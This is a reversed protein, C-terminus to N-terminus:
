LSKLTVKNEPDWAHSSKKKPVDCFKVSCPSRAGHYLPHVPVEPDQSIKSWWLKPTFLTTKYACSGGILHFSHTDKRSYRWNAGVIYPNYLAYRPLNLPVFQQPLDGLDLPLSDDQPYRKEALAHNSYLFLFFLFMPFFILCFVVLVVHFLSMGEGEHYVVGGICAAQGLITPAGFGGIWAQEEGGYMELDQMVQRLCTDCLISGEDTSVSKTPDHSM